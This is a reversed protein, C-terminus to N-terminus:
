RMVNYAKLAMTVAQERAAMGYGSAIQADTVPKPMFNGNQDGTIIGTKKMYKAADLAWPSIDEQDPYDDIDTVSYGSNQAMARIANFLMVACQERNIPISPSFTTASTGATVGIGYAKLVQPNVTDTFPNPSAADPTEGTVKEFLLVALECFEERTVPMTMDAGELINPILGLAGAEVLIDTAWSSNNSRAPENVYIENSWPSQWESGNEDNGFFRLRFKVFSGADITDAVMLSIRRGEDFWGSNTIGCNKWSSPGASYQAEMDAWWRTRTNDYYDKANRVSGPIKLTFEFFVAGWETRPNYDRTFRIALDSILPADYKIPAAWLPVCFVSLTVTFVLLFKKIM